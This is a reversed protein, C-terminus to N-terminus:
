NHIIKALRLLSSSIKLGTKNVRGINIEFRIKDYETYFNVMVGQQAFGKTDGITLVSANGLAEVIQSVRNRESNSIFLVHCGQMEGSLRAHKVRVEKDHIMRNQIEKLSKGFPDNGVVCINVERKRGGQPWETFKTFNYIFAAKVEYEGYVREEAYVSPTGAACLVLMTLVLVRFKMSSFVM